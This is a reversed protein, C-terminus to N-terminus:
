EWTSIISFFFDKRFDKLPEKLIWFIIKKELLWYLFIDRDVEGKLILFGPYKKSVLETTKGTIFHPILSLNQQPKKKEVKSFSKKDEM